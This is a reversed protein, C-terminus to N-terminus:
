FPFRGPSRVQSPSWGVRWVEDSRNPAATQRVVQRKVGLGDAVSAGRLHDSEHLAAGGRSAGATQHRIAVLDHGADVEPRVAEVEEHSSGLLVPADVDEVAQALRNAQRGPEVLAGLECGLHHAARHGGQLAEALPQAVHGVGGHARHPGVRQAARAVRGAHLIEQGLREAVGHLDDRAALLGAEDVLAHSAARRAQLTPQQHEVDPAAAGLADDALPQLGQHEVAEVHAADAVRQLEERVSLDRAVGEALGLQGRAELQTRDALDVAVHAPVARDARRSGDQGNVGHEAGVAPARARDRRLRQPLELARQDLLLADLLEGELAELGVPRRHERAAHRDQAGGELLEADLSELGRGARQALPQHVLQQAPHGVAVGAVAGDLRDGGAVLHIERLGRSDLSGGRGEEILGVVVPLVLGLLATAEQAPCRQNVLDTQRDGVRAVLLVARVDQLVGLHRAERDVVLGHERRDHAGMATADRSAVEVLEVAVAALQRTVERHEEPQGYPQVM